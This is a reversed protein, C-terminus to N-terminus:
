IFFINFSSHFNCKKLSFHFIFLSFHFIASVCNHSRAILWVVFCGSLMICLAYNMIRFYSELANCQLALIM